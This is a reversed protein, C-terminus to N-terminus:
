ETNEEKKERGARTALTTKTTKKKQTHATMHTCALQVPSKHSGDFITTNNINGGWVCQLVALSVRFSWEWGLL